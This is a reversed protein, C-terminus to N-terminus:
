PADGDLQAAIREIHALSAVTDTSPLYEMGWPGSYGAERLIRLQKAWDLDGTGPEHRGPADAVQVHGILSGDSGIASALDEEMVLAHYADLLLKVHESGIARVVDLGERTSDLFAGAHDVRTNLNELLLTVDTGELLASARRLVDVVVDRQEGRSVDSREDGAVAVLFPAGLRQAIDLSEAVAHLYADHTRPDTIQLQPDVILSLLEVGTEELAAKIADLDKDRWGWMEVHRLGHASAARIRDATTEGAETFMWEMNAAISM